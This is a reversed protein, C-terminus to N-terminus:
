WRDGWPAPLDDIKAGLSLNKSVNFLCKKGICPTNRSINPQNSRKTVDLTYKQVYIYMQYSM